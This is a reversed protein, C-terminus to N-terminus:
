VLQSRSIQSLWKHVLDLVRPVPLLSCWEVLRVCTTDVDSIHLRHMDALIATNLINLSKIRM